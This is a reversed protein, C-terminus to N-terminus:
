GGGLLHRMGGHALAGGLFGNLAVAAAGGFIAVNVVLGSVSSRAGRHWEILLAIGIMGFMLATGLWRHAFMVGAEASAPPGAHAWGFLGAVLGGAAATWVLFRVTQDLSDNRGRLSMAQALAAAMLLAIPFHVLLPHYVGLKAIAREADSQPGNEGWHSHGPVEGAEGGHSQGEAEGVASMGHDHPAADQHTPESVISAAGGEPDAQHHAASMDHGAATSEIEEQPAPEPVTQYIPEEDHQDPPHPLASAAVSGLAFLAM